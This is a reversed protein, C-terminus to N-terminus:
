TRQGHSGVIKKGQELLCEVTTAKLTETIALVPMSRSLLSDDTKHQEGSVAAQRM